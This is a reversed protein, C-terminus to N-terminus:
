GQFSVDSTESSQAPWYKEETRKLVDALAATPSKLVIAWPDLRVHSTTQIKQVTGLDYVNRGKDKAEKLTWLAMAKKNEWSKECKVAQHLEESNYYMDEWESREVGQFIAQCIAHWDEDVLPLGM